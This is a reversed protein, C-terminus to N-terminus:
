ANHEVLPVLLDVVAPTGVVYATHGSATPFALCRGGAARVVAWGPAIDWPRTDIGVYADLAGTAVAFLECSASGTRRFDRVEGYVKELLGFTLARRAPHLSVGVSVLAEDLRHTASVAPTGASGEIGSEGCAIWDGFAPRVIAGAVTDYGATQGAADGETGAAGAAGAAGPRADAEHVVEAALAVAYDPRGHVFNTTGDLPDVIWRIGSHGPHAGSEEALIADQDRHRRVHGLVAEEAAQDADTVLDRPSMKTRVSFSRGRGFGDLVRAGALAADLAIRGLAPGSTTDL